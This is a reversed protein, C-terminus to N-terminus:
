SISFREERQAGFWARRQSWWSRRPSAKRPVPRRMPRIWLHDLAEPLTLRISSDQHLCCTLFQKAQRSIPNQPNHWRGAAENYSSAAITVASSIPHVSVESVSRCHRCSAHPTLATAGSPVYLASDSHHPFHGSSTTQPHHQQQQRQHYDLYPPVHGLLCYHMLVGLSWVTSVGGGCGCLTAEDHECGAEDCCAGHPSSQHGAHLVQHLQLLEPATYASRLLSGSTLMQNTFHSRNSEARDLIDTHQSDEKLLPAAKCSITATGFDAIFAEDSATVLIHLPQIQSHCIGMDHHLHDSCSFPLHSFQFRYLPWSICAPYRVCLKWFEVWSEVFRLNRFVDRACYAINCHEFTSELTKWCWVFRIRKMFSM